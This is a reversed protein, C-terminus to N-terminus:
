YLNMEILDRNKDREEKPLKNREKV